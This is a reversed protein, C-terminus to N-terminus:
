TFGNEFAYKVLGATNKKQLKQLLNRRHADITRPSLFLKKAIEPNTYGDSILKLVETERTGPGGGRVDVGAVAAQDPVIATVGTMAEVDEANGIKIGDVDTILNRAGPKNM